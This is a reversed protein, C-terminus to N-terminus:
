LFKSLNMCVNTGSKRRERSSQSAGKAAKNGYGGMTERPAPVRESRRFSRM